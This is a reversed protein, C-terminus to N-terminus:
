RSSSDYRNQLEDFFQRLMAVANSDETLEYGGFRYVEYGKLRLARDEAVMQSYLRPSALDDEAYHHKGDVEIVIRVGGPLMLLFDMRERKLREGKRLTQRERKTLPDYHLYVQPLLAPQRQGEEGAYRECYTNFVVLEAPNEETPSKKMCQRLRGYLDHGISRDDGVLGRKDRWWAVLEGWTLGAATLERDYVLCTDAHEVVEIVNNIADRLVIEPKHGTSAFIINKMQGDVGRISGTGSWAEELEDLRDWLPTFLESLYGRRAAYSHSMGERVWYAHFGGYDRFPPKFEIGIRGLLARLARLVEIIQENDLRQGNGGTGYAELERHTLRSLGQAVSWDPSDPLPGWRVQDILEENLVTQWSSWPEGNMEWAPDQEEVFFDSPRM